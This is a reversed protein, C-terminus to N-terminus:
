ANRKRRRPWRQSRPERVASARLYAMDAIVEARREDDPGARDLVRNWITGTLGALLLILIALLWRFPGETISLVAVEATVVLTLAGMFLATANGFAPRELRALEDSLDRLRIQLDSRPILSGPPYDDHARTRPAM